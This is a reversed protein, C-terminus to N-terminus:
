RTSVDLSKRLLDKTTAPADLIDRVTAAVKDAPWPNVDLDQKRADALFEPDRMTAEFARRLAAVRAPPARENTAVPRSLGIVKSIYQLAAKQEPGSALDELLPVNPFNPDKRVGAQIIVNFADAGGPTTAFLARLNTTVRGEAEGRQMALNMAPGSQYGLINNFRTGLARNAVGVLIVEVGGVGTAALPTARTRADEITKTPSDRRTVLFLNEDSVNGLWNLAGVDTKLHPDTGLSQDMATTATVMTIATGDHPAVKDFHNLATLGGAGPMNLPLMAPNGPIHKTMHRGLTRLYLDYNGGPAARIIFGIQKGRYFDEIEDAMAPAATFLGALIGLLTGRRM